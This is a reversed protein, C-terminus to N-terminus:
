EIQIKEIKTLLTFNLLWYPHNSSPANEEWFDRERFQQRVSETWNQSVSRLESGFGHLSALSSKPTVARRTEGIFIFFLKVSTILQKVDVELLEACTM